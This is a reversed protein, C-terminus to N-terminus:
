GADDIRVVDALPLVDLVLSRGSEDDLYLGTSSATGDPAFEVSAEGREIWGEPTEVGVFRISEEMWSFRGLSGPLPQYSREADPPAAMEIPGDDRTQFMSLESSPDFGALPDPAAEEVEEETYLWELRYGGGDLDLLVRHPIGTLVARQRGLELQAALDEARQRLDRGTISGVRPAILGALLAFILVVAMM